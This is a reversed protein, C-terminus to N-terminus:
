RTRRRPAKKFEALNIQDRGGQEVDLVTLHFRSGPQDRREILDYGKSDLQWELRVIGSM